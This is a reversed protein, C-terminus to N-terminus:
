KAPPPTTAAEAARDARRDRLMRPVDSFVTVYAIMSLLLVFFVSQTTMIVNVPLARGRLRAVTAFLMQGGDLVPLPLLNFIALNVNLLITIMFVARLGIEAATHLIRVIGVPGSMKNLGIDSSPSILSVLTRVTWRAVDAIQTFPSVHIIKYGTRLSLGLLQPTKTGPRPPITLTVTQGQRRVTAIVPRDISSELHQRFASDNIIPQGDFTLIEDDVLFGARAAISDAPVALVILEFGPGIGVRRVKEDGALQPTLRVQLPQGDRELAFTVQREGSASRGSGLVLSNQVDGWNEVAAGDISLIQDGVRLGALSAPSPVKSGDPLDLTRAVYGIRTSVMDSSVPQGMAWVICALLFAFLVNFLAGAVFVIMKTSYSVPPVKSLDTTSEGELTGLDALQPLLVYGGLPFWAIRYEVGDKGRWSWIPPGFGISFREVVAGRRRAALFHGLEHVFISGGFFLVVLFISWVNSLLSPLLDSAV